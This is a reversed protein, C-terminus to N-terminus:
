KRYTTELYFVIKRLDAEPLELGNDVMRSVLKAADGEGRPPHKEVLNLGHCQICTTEFTKQSESLDFPATAGPAAALVKQAAEGAKAQSTRQDQQRSVGMELDPSIAILYAIAYQQQSPTITQVANSREAM